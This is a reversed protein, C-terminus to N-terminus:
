DVSSTETLTVLPKADRSLAITKGGNSFVATYKASYGGQTVQLTYAQKGGATTAKGVLHCMGPAAIPTFTTGRYLLNTCNGDDSITKNPTGDSAKWVGAIEPYGSTCGTLLLACSAVVVTALVRKM